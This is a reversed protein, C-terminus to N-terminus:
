TCTGHTCICRLAGSGDGDGLPTVLKLSAMRVHTKKFRQLSKLRATPVTSDGADFTAAVLEAGIRVGM